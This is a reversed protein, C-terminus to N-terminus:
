EHISYPETKIFTWGLEDCLEKWLKDNVQFKKMYPVLQRATDGHNNMELLKLLIYSNELLNKRRRDKQHFTDHVQRFRERIHHVLINNLQPPHQGTLYVYYDNVRCYEAYRKKSKFFKLINAQTAELNNEHLYEQLEQVRQESVFGARRGQVSMIYKFFSNYSHTYQQCPSANEVHIGEAFCYGQEQGCQPCVKCHKEDIVLPTNPCESCYKDSIM